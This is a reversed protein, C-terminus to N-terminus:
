REGRHPRGKAPLCSTAVRGALSLMMALEERRLVM